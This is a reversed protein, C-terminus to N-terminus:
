GSSNSRSKPSQDDSSLNWRVRPTRRRMAMAMECNHCCPSWDSSMMGPVNGIADPGNTLSSFFYSSSPQSGTMLDSMSPSFASGNFISLSFLCKPRNEAVRRAARVTYMADAGRGSPELPTSMLDITSPHVWGPSDGVWNASANFRSDFSEM